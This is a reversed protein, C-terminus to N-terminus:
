DSAAKAQSVIYEELIQNQQLQRRLELLLNIRGRSVAPRKSGIGVEKGVTADRRAARQRGFEEGVRRQSTRECLPENKVRLSRVRDGPRKRILTLEHLVGRHLQTIKARASHMKENLVPQISAHRRVEIKWHKEVLRIHRACARKRSQLRPLIEQVGPM